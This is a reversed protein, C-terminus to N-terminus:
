IQTGIKCSKQCLCPVNKNSSDIVKSLVISVFKHNQHILNSSLCNDKIEYSTSDVNKIYLAKSMPSLKYTVM